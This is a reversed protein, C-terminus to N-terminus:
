LGAFGLAFVALLGAMIGGLAAPWALEVLRSRLRHEAREARERAEALAAVAHRYCGRLEEESRVGALKGTHTFRLPMRTRRTRVREAAQGSPYSVLGVQM